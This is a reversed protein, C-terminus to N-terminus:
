HVLLKLSINQGSSHIKVIYMGKPLVDNPVFSYTSSNIIQTVGIQRGSLDEIWIKAERPMYEPLDITFTGGQTPNPFLKIDSILQQSVGNITFAISTDSVCLNNASFAVVTYIGPGPNNLTAITAGTIVQGNRFWRYTAGPTAPTLTAQLNNNLPTIVPKVPKNTLSVSVAPSQASVCGAASVARVRIGATAAKVVFRQTANVITSNAGITWRYNAFGTPAELVVSDGSCISLSGLNTINPTAPLEEVMVKITDSFLVCNAKTIRVYYSGTDVVTQLTMTGSVQQGSKFWQYQIGSINAPPNYRLIFNSGRCLLTDNVQNLGRPIESCVQYEFGASTDSICGNASIAIARYTGSLLALVQSTTDGILLTRGRFWLYKVVNSNASTNIINPNTLSLTPASPAPSYSVRVAQSTTDSGQFTNFVGNNNAARLFEFSTRKLTFNGSDASVLISSNNNAIATRNRFWQYSYNGALSDKLTFVGLGKCVQSPGVIQIKAPVALSDVSTVVVGSDGVAIIQPRGQSGSVTTIARLSLNTGSTGCFWQNNNNATNCAIIRGNNGVAFNWRINWAQSSYEVANISNIPTCTSAINTFNISVKRTVFGSLLNILFVNGDASYAYYNNANNADTRKISVIPARTITDFNFTVWRFSSDFATAASNNSNRFLYFVRASDAGILTNAQRIGFNDTDFNIAAISTLKAKTPLQLVWSRINNIGGDRVAIFSGTDGVAFGHGGWWGGTYTIANLNQKLSSNVSSWTTRGAGSGESILFTGSDGVAARRTEGAASGFAIANLNKNVPTAISDKIWQRGGNASYFIAGGNGVATIQNTNNFTVVGNLKPKGPVYYQAKVQMALLLLCAAIASLKTFLKM